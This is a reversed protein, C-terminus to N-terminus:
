SGDKGRQNHIKGFNTFTLLYTNSSASYEFDQKLGEQAKYTRFLREMEPTKWVPELSTPYRGQEQYYMALRARLEAALQGRASDSALSRPVFLYYLVCVCAAFIGCALLTKKLRTQMVEM